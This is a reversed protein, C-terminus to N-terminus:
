GGAAEDTALMAHARGILVSDPAPAPEPAAPSGGQRAIWARVAAPDYVRLHPLQQPFGHDRRLSTVVDYFRAVSVGLARAVDRTTWVLRDAM